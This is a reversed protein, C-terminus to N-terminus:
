PFKGVCVNKLITEAQNRLRKITRNVEKTEYNFDPNSLGSMKKPYKKQLIDLIDGNEKEKIRYVELAVKIPDGPNRLNHILQEWNKLDCKKDELDLNLNSEFSQWIRIEQKLSSVNKIKSMTEQGLYCGKNFDILDKLGLELPNNKGNIEM